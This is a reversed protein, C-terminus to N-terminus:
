EKIKVVYLNRLLNFAGDLTELSALYNDFSELEKIKKRHAVPHSFYIRLSNVATFKSYAKGSILNLKKCAELKNFFEMKSFLAEMKLIDLAMGVKSYSKESWGTICAILQYELISEISFHMYLVLDRLEKLKETLPAREDIIELLKIKRKIEEARAEHPSKTSFSNKKKM